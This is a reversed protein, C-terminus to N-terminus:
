LLIFFTCCRIKSIIWKSLEPWPQSGPMAAEQFKQSLTPTMKFPPLLYWLFVSFVFKPELWGVTFRLINMIRPVYFRAELFMDSFIWVEKQSSLILNIEQLKGNETVKQKSICGHAYIKMDWCAGCVWSLRLEATMNM